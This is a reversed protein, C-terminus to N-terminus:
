ERVAKQAVYIFYLSIMLLFNYGDVINDSNCFYVYTTYVWVSIYTLVYIVCPINRKVTM